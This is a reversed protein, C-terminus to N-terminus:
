LNKLLRSSRIRNEANSPKGCHRRDVAAILVTGLVTYIAEITYGYWML